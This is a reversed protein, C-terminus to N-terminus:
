GGGDAAGDHVREGGVEVVVRQSGLEQVQGPAEDVAGTLVTVNPSTGQGSWPVTV